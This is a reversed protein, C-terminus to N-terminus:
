QYRSKKEGLLYHCHFDYLEEVDTFSIDVDGREKMERAGM